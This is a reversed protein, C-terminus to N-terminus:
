LLFRPAIDASSAPLTNGGNIFIGIFLLSASFLLEMTYCGWLPFISLFECFLNKHPCVLFPNKEGEGMQKCSHSKINWEANWNNLTCTLTAQCSPSHSIENSRRRQRRARSHTHACEALPIGPFVKKKFAIACLYKKNSKWVPSQVTGATPAGSPSCLPKKIPYLWFFLIFYFTICLSAKLKIPRSVRCM